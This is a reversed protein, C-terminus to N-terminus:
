VDVWGLAFGGDPWSHIDRLNDWDLRRTKRSAVIICPKTLAIEGHGLVVCVSAGENFREQYYPMGNIATM